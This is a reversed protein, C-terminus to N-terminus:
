CASEVVFFGNLCYGLVFWQLTIQSLEILSFLTFFLVHSINFWLITFEALFLNPCITLCFFEDSADVVHVVRATGLRVSM